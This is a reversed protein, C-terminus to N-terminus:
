QTIWSKYLFFVNVWILLFLMLLQRQFSTVNLLSAGIIGVLPSYTIVQKIWHNTKKKM